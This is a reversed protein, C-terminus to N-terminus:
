IFDALSSFSTLVSTTTDNHIKTYQSGTTKHTTDQYVSYLYTAPPGLGVIGFGMLVWTIVHFM